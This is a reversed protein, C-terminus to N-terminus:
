ATLWGVMLDFSQEYIGDEDPPLDPGEGAPLISDVAVGNVTGSQNPCAAMALKLISKQTPYTAAHITVQVRETQLVGSTPVSVPTRPVSSIQAVGLAPLATNLPIGGAFIRAAPVVAILAANNALLYRVVAVGSM